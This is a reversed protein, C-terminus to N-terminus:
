IIEKLLKQFKERSMDLSSAFFIFLLVLNKKHFEFLKRQESYKLENKSIVEYM